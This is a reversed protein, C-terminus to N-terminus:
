FSVGGRLTAYAMAGGILVAVLGFVVLLAPTFADPPALGLKKQARAQGQALPVRFVICAIGGLVLAASVFLSM